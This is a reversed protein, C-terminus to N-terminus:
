LIIMKINMTIVASKFKHLINELKLSWFATTQDIDQFKMNNM